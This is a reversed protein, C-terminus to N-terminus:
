RMQFDQYKRPTKVVRGSRTQKIGADNLSEQQINETHDEDFQDDVSQEQNTLTQDTNKTLLLHGRNRRYNVGDSQVVYSRPEPAIDVVTGERYPQGETQINVSDGINLKPLDKAHKDYNRRQNEQNKQLGKKTRMLSPTKPMLLKPNAPIIGRIRRSMLLQVPSYGLNELPTNRNELMAIYPDRKDMKAKKLLRKVSQVTREIMGNSQPYRPSSTTHKFGYKGAFEAFEKSAFQPGNDSVVEEPIGYRAFHPKIMEIVQSSKTSTLRSLEYFKSYYDVILVYTHNELDFLDIGLKQWPRDPIEHPKLPEKQQRNRMSGCIKCHEVYDALDNNIGPWFLVDRARSRCKEIGAHDYHLADLMEKRQSNPVVIRKGKLIMGESISLEERFNWFDKIISPCDARLNPWGALITERLVRMEQDTETEKQIKEMRETTVPLNEVVYVKFCDEDKDFNEDRKANRSLTDAVYLEKGPKYQVFLDYRQIKLMMRQIRPPASSLTKRFLSELPKHDTEVHVKHGYVFQHYKLCGFVVALLEKEIQAYNRESKNLSRSAYAVPRGEQLLCAGLGQSSADVSLTVPKRQDYYQLVPSETLAKKLAKFSKAHREDWHWSIDKELLERLPQNIDSLNRVFKGLYNVMGMFRQLEKKCKPEPMSTIAAIKDPDTKLGDSGIIHGMYKVETLSIKCKQKNLKLNAARVRELVIRLRKNHQEITEGWILVDDMIAECGEIDDFIESIRKQFVEPASSIGFPMRRYKYRGFPTNFTTKMSSEEDLEITWFGSSADLTSFVKAGQLKVAVDEVTKMPFHERKIARNLDRPDICIRVRNKKEVVVMSNVWSTPKNVKEIVGLSEMRSLEAKVKERLAFPVKRPPHVVPQVRDDTRIKYKGKLHGLGEFVDRFETFVDVTNQKESDVQYLRQILEMEVSSKSGLVSDVDGRVVLFPVVHYKDKYLLALDTEGYTSMKHGFYSVLKTRSKRLSKRSLRKYTDLSIVNCQAGTDIKLKLLKDNCVVKVMWDDSKKSKQSQNVIGNVLFEDESDSEKPDLANVKERRKKYPCKAAFHDKRHCKGCTQGFAPCKRAEHKRGCKNCDYRYDKFPKSQSGKGGFFKNAQGKKRVANVSQEPAPASSAGAMNKLQQKSSEASRCVDIAKQLTLDSERLLRGRVVDSNTGCVIRDRILTDHLDGFECSKALIRLDTVFADINESPGQTRTNFVHREYAVNKRPNCYKEFKALVKDVKKNDGASDGEETWSFTNFIEIADPGIVHLLTNTKIDDSQSKLGTASLYIEFQQKFRRFNEKLNGSLSLQGPPTLNKAM